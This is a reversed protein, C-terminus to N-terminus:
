GRGVRSGSGGDAVDVVCSRGCRDDVMRSRGECGGGGGYCHGARSDTIDLMGGRCYSNGTRGDAIGSWNCRITGTESESVGKGSSRWSNGNAAWRHAKGCRGDGSGWSRDGNVVSRSNGVARSGDSSRNGCITSTESEAVGEGGSCWSDSDTTRCHAKSCRGDSRGWSGNGDVVSGGHGVAGSGNGSRNGGETGAKAESVGKCSGWGNSDATGSYAVSSRGNSGSWSGNSDVVGWSSDSDVVSWGDGIASSGDGSWNGRKTGSESKTVGEGSSGRSDGVGTGCYAISCWCNGGRRSGDGDVMGWSGDGDVVSWSDGVASSGHGSWNGGETSTDTETM